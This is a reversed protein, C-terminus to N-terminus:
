LKEYIHSWLKKVENGLTHEEAYKYCAQKIRDLENRNDNLYKIKNWIQLPSMKDVLMGNVNDKIISSISGTTAVAIPIVGYSMAEPLVKPTGESISPFLFVDAMSYYSELEKLDSIYGRFHVNEELELDKCLQKLRGEECGEGLINFEFPISQKNLKDLAILADDIRKLNELRGVYLFTLKSVNKQSICIGEHTTSFYAYVDNLHEYKEALVSGASVPISNRIISHQAKDLIAGIFNSGIFDYNAAFSEKWDGAIYSTFTANCNSVTRYISLVFISPIRFQIIDPKVMDLIYQM